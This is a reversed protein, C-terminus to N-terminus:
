RTSPHRLLFIKCYKHKAPYFCIPTSCYNGGKPSEYPKNLYSILAVGAVLVVATFAFIKKNRRKRLLNQDALFKARKEERSVDM